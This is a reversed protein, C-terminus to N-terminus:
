FIQLPINISHTADSSIVFQLQKLLSVYRDMKILWFSESALPVYQLPETYHSSDSGGLILEGGIQGKMDRFCVDLFEYLCVYLGMDCVNYAYWCKCNVCIM